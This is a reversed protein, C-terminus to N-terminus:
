HGMGPGQIAVDRSSWFRGCLRIALVDSRAPTANARLQRYREVVHFGQEAVLGGFLHDWPLRPRLADCLM